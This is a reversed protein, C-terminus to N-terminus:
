EAFDNFVFSQIVIGYTRATNIPLTALNALQERLSDPEVLAFDCVTEFDRSNIWKIAELRVKDNRDYIDKIGQALVSRWMVSEAELTCTHARARNKPPLITPSNLM